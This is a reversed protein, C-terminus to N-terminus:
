PERPGAHRAGELPCPEIPEAAQLRGRGDLAVLTGVRALQQMQIHFLEASDGLNAMPDDPALTTTRAPRAPLVHVHRDIIGGADGIGLAQGILGSVAGRGEQARRESVVRPQPATIVSL